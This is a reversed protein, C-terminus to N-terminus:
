KGHFAKILAYIIMIFGDIGIQVLFLKVISGLDYLGEANVLFQLINDM